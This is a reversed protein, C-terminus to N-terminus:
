WGPAPPAAGLVPPAGGAAIRRTTRAFAAILASDESARWALQLRPTRPSGQLPRAVVDERLIAVVPEPQVSLGSGAAVLALVADLGEPEQAVRPVQGERAFLELVTSRAGGGVTATRLVLPEAAVAELSLVPREALPHDAPVLVVLREAELAATRLGEDSLPAHVFAVDLRGDHLQAVQRAVALDRVETTVSPRDAAFARLVAPLLGGLAWDVAGIRLHGLDGRGARRAAAVAVEAHDLAERARVLFARGADTLELRRSTRILLEVGLEDELRRIQQSLSPQAIHLRAAARGFHLEEAVAIFYHVRRLDLV